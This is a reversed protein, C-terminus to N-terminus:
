NYRFVTKGLVNFERYIENRSEAKGGNNQLVLPHTSLHYM